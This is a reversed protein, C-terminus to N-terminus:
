HYLLRSNVSRNYTRTRGKSGNNLTGERVSDLVATAWQSFRESPEFDVRTNTVLGSSGGVCLRRAVSAGARGRRRSAKNAGTSIAGMMKKRMEKPRSMNM